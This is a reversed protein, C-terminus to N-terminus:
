LPPNVLRKEWDAVRILEGRQVMEHGEEELLRRQNEVGGPYKPNLQGDSRLTRWWPTIRKRGETRDEEAARAAIGAFIGTTIPCGITTHHKVALAERIQNVTILKGRPVRRIINDVERPAPIVCTGTGWRRSMKGEIKVVRPLDKDDALKEKWSKKLKAM